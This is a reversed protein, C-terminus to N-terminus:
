ILTEAILKKPDQRENVQGLLSILKVHVKPNMREIAAYPSQEHDSDCTWADPPAGCLGRVVLRAKADLTLPTAMPSALRRRFLRVTNMMVEEWDVDIATLSRGDVTVALDDGVSVLALDEPVRLGASMAAEVVVPVHDDQMVLLADPRDHDHLRNRLLYTDPETRGSTHCFLYNRADPIMGSQFLAKMYGSFRESTTELMDMTGTVGIRRRGQAALHATATRAAEFNDFKSLDTEIGRLKHDLCIIPLIGQLRQIRAVDPYGEFPWVFAGAFSNDAAYELCDELPMVQTDLHVLHFGMERLLSSLRVFINRLVYTPGDIFAVNSSPTRPTSPRGVVTGRNPINTALGREVLVSLSKRVTSRSALFEDQLERETPLLAGDALEGSRIRSALADAITAASIRKKSSGAEDVMSHILICITQWIM